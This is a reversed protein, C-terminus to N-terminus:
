KAVMFATRKAATAPVAAANAGCLEELAEVAMLPAKSSKFTIASFDLGTKFTREYHPGLM